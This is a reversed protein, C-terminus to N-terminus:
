SHSGISPTILKVMLYSLTVRGWDAPRERGCGALAGEERWKPCVQPRM